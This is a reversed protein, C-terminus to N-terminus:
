AAAPHVFILDIINTSVDAWRDLRVDGNPQVPDYIWLMLDDTGTMGRWGAIVDVHRPIKLQRQVPRDNKLEGLIRPLAENWDGRESQSFLIDAVLGSDRCIDNLGKHQDLAPTGASRIRALNEDPDGPMAEAFRRAIKHQDLDAMGHHQLIMASAAPACFNRREQVILQLGIKHELMGTSAELGVPEATAASLVSEETLADEEKGFRAAADEAVESALQDYPKWFDVESSDSLPYVEGDVLDMVVPGKNGGTLVIGLRPYAYCVIRVPERPAGLGSEAARAIVTEVSAALNSPRGVSVSVIVTGLVKNAGTRVRLEVSSDLPFVFDRFLLNGDLDHIEEPPMAFLAPNRLAAQLLEKVKPDDLVTGPEKGLATAAGLASGAEAAAYRGLYVGVAARAARRVEDIDSMLKEYEM